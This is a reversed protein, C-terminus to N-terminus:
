KSYIIEYNDSDFYVIKKDPYQKFAAVKSPVKFGNRQEYEGYEGGWGIPTEVGDIVAVEREMSFFDTIRGEDDITFTGTGSVGNYSVTAEVHNYDIQKYTIYESLLATPNLVNESMWSILGAVYMQENHVDFIQIVKGVVGIMGGQMAGDIEKCYDMGEFPVGMYSSTIGASRFPRDAFLYLDYQMTLAKNMDTNFFYTDKYKVRVQNHKAQGVCGIYNFYRQMAEPLREIDETTITGTAEATTDIEKKIMKQFANKNPSYPIEFFIVIAVIIVVLIGLIISMMKKGKKRRRKDKEEIEKSLERVSVM